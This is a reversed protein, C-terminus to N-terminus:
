AMVPTGGAYFQPQPQASLGGGACWGAELSGAGALWLARIM